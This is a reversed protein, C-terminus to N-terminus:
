QWAAGAEVSRQTAAGMKSGDYGVRLGPTVEIIVRRPSDLFKAFLDVREQGFKKMVREALAPYFWDKTARDDLVRATGKYTVTKNKGMPAGTSTIVLAVRPDRRIAPIRKRQSSATLWFKGDKELYSMIVAMSSGDATTWCFVCEDQQDIMMREDAADLGYKTVDEYNKIFDELEGM